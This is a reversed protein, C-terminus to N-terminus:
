DFPIRRVGGRAGQQAAGIASPIRMGCCTPAEQGKAYVHDLPDAGDVSHDHSCHDAGTNIRIRKGAIITYTHGDQGRILAQGGYSKPPIPNPAGGTTIPSANPAEIVEEEEEEEEGDHRRSPVFNIFTGFLFHQMIPLKGLVEALYMKLMGSNVKDWTKVGSIDDLMPSHWRLSATKVENIFKISALYIYDKAFEQVTEADHISKPKIYRHGVLQASGFLFPLFHYDDLGWVGHSGAPELWYGFQLQRMVRLYRHFVRLVLAPHDTVTFLDLRVLCLLFAMFNAEHGTGYDIRERNGFSEQLYGAVERAAAAREEDDRLKPSGRLLPEVWSTAQDHVGDYFTRFAPNGFRGDTQLPPTATALDSVTGLLKVLAQTIESEHCAETLKRGLVAQNLAEIFGIYQAYAESDQFEALDHKTLIRKEPLSPAESSAPTDTPLDAM